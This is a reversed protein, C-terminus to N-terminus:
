FNRSWRGHFFEEDCDNEEEGDFPEAMELGASENEGFHNEIIDCRRRTYRKM